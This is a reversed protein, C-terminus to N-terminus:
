TQVSTQYHKWNAIRVHQLLARNYSEFSYQISVLPLFPPSLCAPYCHHPKLIVPVPISSWACIISWLFLFSVSSFVCFEGSISSLVITQLLSDADLRMPLLLQHGTTRARPLSATPLGPLVPVSCPMASPLTIPMNLGGPASWTCLNYSIHQLRLEGTERATTLKLLPITHASNSFSVSRHGPGHLGGPSSSYSSTILM